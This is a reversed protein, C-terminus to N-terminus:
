LVDSIMAIMLIMPDNMLDPSDFSYLRKLNMTFLEAAQCSATTAICSATNHGLLQAQTAPSTVLLVAKAGLCCGGRGAQRGTAGGRCTAGGRTWIRRGRRPCSVTKPKALCSRKRPLHPSWWLREELAGAAAQKSVPLGVLAPLEVGQGKPEKDEEKPLEWVWLYVKKFWM